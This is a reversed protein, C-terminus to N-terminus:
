VFEGGLSALGDLVDLESESAANCVSEAAELQFGGVFTALRPFLKQEGAASKLRSLIDQGSSANVEELFVTLLATYIVFLVFKSNLREAIADLSTSSLSNVSIGILRELHPLLERAIKSTRNDGEQSFILCQISNIVQTNIAFIKIKKVVPM